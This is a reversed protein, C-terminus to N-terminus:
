GHMKKSLQFFEATELLWEGQCESHKIAHMEAVLKDNSLRDPKRADHISVCGNEGEM